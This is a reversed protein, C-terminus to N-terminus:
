IIRKLKRRSAGAPGVIAVGVAFIMIFPRNVHLHLHDLMLIIDCVLGATQEIKPCDVVDSLGAYGAL